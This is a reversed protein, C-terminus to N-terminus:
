SEMRVNKKGALSELWAVKEGNMAKSVCVCLVKFKWRIWQVVTKGTIFKFAKAFLYFVIFMKISLIVIVGIMCQWQLERASNTKPFPITPCNEIELFECLPEWGEKVNYELLQNKPIVERVRRNHAEYSVIASDHKQDPIPFDTLFSNDDNVIAFLWRLYKLYSAVEPVIIGYEATSYSTQALLDWSEFWNESSERETLIFKCDPYEKLIQEYYFAMPLDATAQFGHSTIADISPKRITAVEEEFSPLVVDNIWMDMIKTNEYLQRTHLCPFGIETLALCLSFTGTRGYGIAAVKLTQDDVDVREGIKELSEIGLADQVPLIIFEYLYKKVFYLNHNVGIMGGNLIDTAYENWTDEPAGHTETSLSNNNTDNYNNSKLYPAM